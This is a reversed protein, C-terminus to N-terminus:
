AEMICMAEVANLTDFKDSKAYLKVLLKTVLTKIKDLNERNRNEIIGRCFGALKSEIKLEAVAKMLAQKGKGFLFRNTDCGSAAHLLPLMDRENESFSHALEHFHTYYGKTQIYLDQLGDERLQKFHFLTMVIIDTDLACIILWEKVGMESLLLQTFFSEQTQKQM